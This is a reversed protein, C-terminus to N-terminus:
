LEQFESWFQPIWFRQPKQHLYLVEFYSCRKRLYVLDGFLISCCLDTRELSCFLFLVHNLFTSLANILGIYSSGLCFLVSFDFVFQFSNICQLTWLSQNQINSGSTAADLPYLSKSKLRSNKPQLLNLVTSQYSLLSLFVM